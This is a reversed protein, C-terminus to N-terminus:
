PEQGISAKLYEEAAKVWDWYVQYLTIGGHSTDESNIEKKVKPLNKRLISVLRDDHDGFEALLRFAKAQLDADNPWFGDFLVCIAQVAQKRAELHTLVDKPSEVLARVARAFLVKIARKLDYDLRRDDKELLSTLLSWARPKDIEILLKAAEERQGGPYHDWSMLIEELAAISDKTNIKALGRVAILPSRYDPNRSLLKFPKVASAGLQVAEDFKDQAILALAREYPNAPEWLLAELAKYAEKNIGGFDHLADKLAQAARKDKTKGLAIAAQKCVGTSRDKLAAILPETASIDAIKGLVEVAAERVNSDNDKLAVILHAIAPTGIEALTKAATNRTNTGKLAATLSAIADTRLANDSDALAGILAAAAPLGIKVLADICTKRMDENGNQFTNILPGVALSDRMQGLAEAAAKQLGADKQNRLARILGQIDRKTKLKDIDPHGLLRRWFPM